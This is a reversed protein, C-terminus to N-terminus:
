RAEGTDVQRRLTDTLRTAIFGTRDSTNMAECWAIVESAPLDSKALSQIMVRLCHEIDETMLGEDSMEVQYSGSKMLELGLQMAVRLQGSAILCSLNREVEAYADSDYDFNRNINRKDFATAKIIAQRTWVVLEEPPVAFNFRAMLQRRIGQDVLALESLFDILDSKKLKTLERRLNM